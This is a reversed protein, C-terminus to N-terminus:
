LMTGDKMMPSIPEIRPLPTGLMGSAERRRDSSFSERPTCGTEVNLSHTESGCYGSRLAPSRPISHSTDIRLNNQDEIDKKRITNKSGEPSRARPKPSPTPQPTERADTWQESDSDPQPKEKSLERERERERERSKSKSKEKVKEYKRDRATEADVLRDTGAKSGSRSRGASLM